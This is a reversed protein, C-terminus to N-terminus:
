KSGRFIVEIEPELVYKKDWEAWEAAHERRQKEMQGYLTSRPKYTACGSVLVALVLLILKAM